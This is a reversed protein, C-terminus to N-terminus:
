SASGQRSRAGLKMGLRRRNVTLRSARSRDRSSNSRQRCRTFSHDNIPHLASFRVKLALRAERWDQDPTTMGLADREQSQAQLAQAKAQEVKEAEKRAAEVRDARVKAEEAEQAAKAAEERKRLEEAAAKAEAEKRLREAELQARREEAQRARVKEEESQIIHETHARRTKQQDNWNNGLRNEDETQRMSIQALRRTIEDAERTLATAHREAARARAIAQM